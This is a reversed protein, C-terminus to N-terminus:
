ADRRVVSLKYRSKVFGVVSDLKRNGSQEM